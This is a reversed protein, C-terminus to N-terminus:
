KDANGAMSPKVIQAVAEVKSRCDAGAAALDIIFQGVDRQTGTDPPAPQPACTLLDGPIPQRVLEKRVVVQPVPPEPKSACAALPLAFCLLLLATM